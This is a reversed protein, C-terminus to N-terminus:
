GNFMGGIFPLHMKSKFWTFVSQLRRSLGKPTHVRFHLTPFDFGEVLTNCRGKLRAQRVGRLPLPPALSVVRLLTRNCGQGMRSSPVVEFNITKLVNDPRNSVTSEM